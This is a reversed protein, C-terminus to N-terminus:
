WSLSPEVRDPLQVGGRMIINLQGRTSAKLIASQRLLHSYISNLGARDNKLRDGRVDSMVNELDAEDLAIARQDNAEWVASMGLPQQADAVYRRTLRSRLNRQHLLPLASRVLNFVGMMPVTLCVEGLVTFDKCRDTTWRNGQIAYFSMHKSDLSRPQM